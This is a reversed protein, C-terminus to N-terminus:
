VSRECQERQQYRLGRLVDQTGESTFSRAAHQKLPGGLHLVVGEESVPVVLKAHGAKNSLAVAHV